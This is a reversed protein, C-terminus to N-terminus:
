INGTVSVTKFTFTLTTNVVAEQMAQVDSVNEISKVFNFLPTVYRKNENSTNAVTLNPITVHFIGDTTDRGVTTFTTDDKYYSTKSIALNNARVFNALNAKTSDTVTATVSMTFQVDYTSYFATMDSGYLEEFTDTFNLYMIIGNVSARAIDFAISKTEFAPNLNGAVVAHTQEMKMAASKNLDSSTFYWFSFGSGIIASFACLSLLLSPLRRLKMLSGKFIEYNM